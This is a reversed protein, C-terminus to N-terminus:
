HGREFELYFNSLVKLNLFTSFIGQIFNPETVTTQPFCHDQLTSTVELPTM